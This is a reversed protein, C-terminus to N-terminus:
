SSTGSVRKALNGNHDYAFTVTTADRCMATIEDKRLPMAGYVHTSFGLEAESCAYLVTADQIVANSGSVDSPLVAQATSWLPSPASEM